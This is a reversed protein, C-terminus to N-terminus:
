DTLDRHEELWNPLPERIISLLVKLGREDFPFLYGQRQIGRKDIPYNKVILPVLLKSFVDRIIPRTLYFYDTEFRWGSGYDKGSVLPLQNYYRGDEKARSFAVICPFNYHVVIDGRHVDGVTKRYNLISVDDPSCVVGASKELDWNKRQTCWWINL